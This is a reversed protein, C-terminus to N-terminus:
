TSQPHRGCACRPSFRALEPFLRAPSHGLCESYTTDCGALAAALEYLDFDSGLDAIEDLALGYANDDSVPFGRRALYEKFAPGVDKLGACEPKAEWLISELNHLAIIAGLADQRQLAAVAQRAPTETPSVM